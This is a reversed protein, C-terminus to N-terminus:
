IGVIDKLKFCLSVFVQVIYITWDKNKCSIVYLVQTEVLNNTSGFIFHSSLFHSSTNSYMLKLSVLYGGCFRYHCSKVVKVMSFMQLSENRALVILSPVYKQLSLSDYDNSHFELSLLVGSEGYRKRGEIGLRDDNRPYLMTNSISYRIDM